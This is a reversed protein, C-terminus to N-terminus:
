YLPATDAATAYAVIRCGTRVAVACGHGWCHGQGAWVWWRRHWLGAVKEISRCDGSMRSRGEDDELDLGPMEVHVHNEHPCDEPNASCHCFRLREPEPAQAEADVGSFQFQALHRCALHDTLQPGHPVLRLFQKLHWKHAAEMDGADAQSPFRPTLSDACHPLPKGIAAAFACVTWCGWNRVVWEWHASFDHKGVDKHETQTHSAPPGTYRTAGWVTGMESVFCSDQMAAMMEERALELEKFLAETAPL